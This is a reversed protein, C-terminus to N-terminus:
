GMSIFVLLPKKDQNFYLSFDKWVFGELSDKLDTFGSAFNVQAVIWWDM